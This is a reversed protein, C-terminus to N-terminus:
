RGVAQAKLVIEEFNDQSCNYGSFKARLVSM